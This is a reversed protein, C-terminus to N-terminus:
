YDLNLHDSQSSENFIAALSPGESSSLEQFHDPHQDKLWLLYQPDPIDIM